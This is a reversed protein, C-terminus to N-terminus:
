RGNSRGHVTKGVTTPENQKEFLYGVGHVTLIYRPNKTDQEIKKRLHSIYVHVYDDNGIYRKGWIHDLIEEFSLVKGANSALFVLLRFEVPTLKVQRDNVLACHREVDIKLYGDDYELVAPLENSREGRRLVSRARALMVEPSFPKSLFDDAGAELSQLLLEENNETSLMIIPITTLQRVKKFVQLGEKESMMINIFVMDPQHTILKSIGDLGDRATMVEAGAESLIENVLRMLQVNNDIILVKIGLMQDRFGVVVPLNSQIFFM